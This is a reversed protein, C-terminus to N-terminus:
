KAHNLVSTLMNYSSIKIKIPEERIPLLILHGVKTGTSNKRPRSLTFNGFSATRTVGSHKKKLTQMGEDAGGNFSGYVWGVLVSHCLSYATM